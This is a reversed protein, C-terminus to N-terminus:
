PKILHEKLASFIANFVEVDSTPPLNLNITYALNLAAGHRVTQHDLKITQESIPTPASVEEPEPGIKELEAIDSFKAMERLTKFTALTLKTVQATKPNGTVEVILGKLEDGSLKHADENISFLPEYLTRMSTAIVAKSRSDNRFQRYLDTPIGSETVLGMKKLFPMTARATGGKMLLTKQVFEQSFLDPVSAKKIKALMNKLTGVTTVYPLNAM